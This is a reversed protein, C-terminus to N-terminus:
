TSTKRSGSPRRKLANRQWMDLKARKMASGRLKRRYDEASWSLIDDLEPRPGPSRIAFRPERTVPADRNYPCVEQCIDCGFVWDDMKPQLEAPIEGRREITLYSICRSADMEYPTPFAGTPCADLCATCTGCHDEIPADPALDLTTVMEGLVFFSGLRQDLVLTNKGTWGIGASAAVERELLPATDVFVRFEFPADLERQLREAMTQLKGRVVEHYDDGWAYMATRGRPRDCAEIGGPKLQNYSLAAVVVSMAGNVLERPDARQRFYRHLYDMSGARGGALWARLYAVRGIPEARTIRCRDFGVEAAMDKIHQSLGADPM